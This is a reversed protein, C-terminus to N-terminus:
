FSKSYVQFFSSATGERNKTRKSKLGIRDIEMVDPSQVPVLRQMMYDRVNLDFHQNDCIQPQTECKIVDGNETCGTLLMSLNWLFRRSAADKVQSNQTEPKCSEFYKGTVGSLKPSVAAHVINQCCVEPPQTLVRYSIYFFRRFKTYVILCLICMYRAKCVAKVVSCTVISLHNGFGDLNKVPCQVRSARFQCYCQPRFHPFNDKCM